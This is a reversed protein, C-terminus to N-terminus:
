FTGGGTKNNPIIANIFTDILSFVKNDSKTPTLNVIVKLFALFAIILAAWNSLIFNFVGTSKTVQQSSDITTAETPTTDVGGGEQVAPAPAIVDANVVFCVGQNHTNSAQSKTPQVALLMAFAFLLFFIKKM